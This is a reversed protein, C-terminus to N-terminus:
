NLVEGSRVVDFRPNKLVTLAVSQGPHLTSFKLGRTNKTVVWERSDGGTLYAIGMQPLVHDVTATVKFTTDEIPTM